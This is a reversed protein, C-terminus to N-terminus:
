RQWGLSENEREARGDDVSHPVQQKGSRAIRMGERHDDQKDPRDDASRSRHEEPVEM